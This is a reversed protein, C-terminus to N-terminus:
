FHIRAVAIAREKLYPTLLVCDFSVFGRRGMRRDLNVKMQKLQRAFTDNLHPSVAVFRVRRVKSPRRVHIWHRLRAAVDRSGELRGKSALRRLRLGDAM